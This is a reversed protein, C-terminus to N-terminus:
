FPDNEAREQMQGRHLNKWFLFGMKSTQSFGGIQQLYYRRGVKEHDRAIIDLM